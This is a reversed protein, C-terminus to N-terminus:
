TDRFVDAAGTPPVNTAMGKEVRNQEVPTGKVVVKKKLILDGSPSKGLDNLLKMSFKELELSCDACYWKTLRELGEEKLCKKHFHGIKCKRFSCEVVGDEDFTM